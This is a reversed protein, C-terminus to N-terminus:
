AAPRLRSVGAAGCTAVPAALMALAHEDATLMPPVEERLLDIFTRIKADLFRRSQYLAYVNAPQVAYDGLVRVLTGSRLGSLAVCPSLIAIGLGRAVASELAEMTNVSLRAVGINVVLDDAAGMGVDANLGLWRDLRFVPTTLQLCQHRRLDHPTQPTGHLELYRPSACVVGAISGLRLGVLGSDPLEQAVVISADYGDALPDAMSGTMSVEISLSPFRQQYQLVAPMLLQHGFSSLAHIRLQGTPHITAAQAEAQAEDFSSLIQQCRPLYREGTATLMVRRTTRNLLRSSLQTELQAIARSVAPVKLNLRRAASTFGGDTAVKVFIRMCELTDM